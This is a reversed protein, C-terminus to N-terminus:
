ANYEGQIQPQQKGELVEVRKSVNDVKDSVGKLTDTQKKLDERLAHSVGDIATTMAATFAVMNNKIEKKVRGSHIFSAIAFCVGYQAIRSQMAESLFGIVSHVSEPSALLTGGSAFGIAFLSTVKKVGLKKPNNEEMFQRIGM